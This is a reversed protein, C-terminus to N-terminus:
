AAEAIRRGTGQTGALSEQLVKRLDQASVGATRAWDWTECEQEIDRRAGDTRAADGTMVSKMSLVGCLGHRGVRNKRVM